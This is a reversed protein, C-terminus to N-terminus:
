ASRSGASRCALALARAGPISRFTDAREFLAFLDATLRPLDAEPLGLRERFIGRILAEFWPDSYRFAGGLV